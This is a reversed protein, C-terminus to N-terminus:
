GVRRNKRRASEVSGNRVEAAEWPDREDYGMRVYGRPSAPGGWGIESWATPHAYYAQVIDHALRTKFFTAPSMDGWADSKLKGAQMSRLLADQEPAALAEFPAGHAQRAEASLAELGLRWADRQRPMESQRYGDGQDRDLQHDVLNAVPIPRTTPQPVIRSAVAVVLAFEERSFFRPVDSLALRANIVERTKQDWSPTHRKALVDYGPFRDPM